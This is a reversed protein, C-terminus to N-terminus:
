VLSSSACEHVSMRQSLRLSSTKTSLGFLIRYVKDALQSRVLLDQFRSLTSGHGFPSTYQIKIDKQSSVDTPEIYAFMNAWFSRGYDKIYMRNACDRGSIDPIHGSPTLRHIMLHYQFLISCKCYRSTRFAVPVFPDQVVM